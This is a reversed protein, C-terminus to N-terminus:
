YLLQPLCHLLHIISNKTKTITCILFSSSSPFVPVIYYLIASIASLLNFSSRTPTPPLNQPRRQPGRQADRKTTTPYQRYSQLPSSPPGPDWPHCLPTTVTVTINTWEEDLAEAAQTQEDEDLLEDSEALSAVWLLPTIDFLLPTHLPVVVMPSPSGLYPLFMKGSGTQLMAKTHTTPILILWESGTTSAAMDHRPRHFAEALLWCLGIVQTASAM